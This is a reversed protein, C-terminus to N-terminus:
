AYAASLSLLKIVLLILVVRILTQLQLDANHQHSMSSVLLTAMPLLSVCWALFFLKVSWSFVIAPEFVSGLLRTYAAFGSPNFGYLQAYALALLLVTLSVVSLVVVFFSALIRPLAEVHLGQEWADLVSNNQRARRRLHSTQPLTINILVVLAVLLPVLELVVIRIVLEAALATLGLPAAADFALGFLVGFFAGLVVLLIPWLPWCAKVIDRSLRGQRQQSLVSPTLSLVTLMAAAMVWQGWARFGGGWGIARRATAGGSQQTPTTM